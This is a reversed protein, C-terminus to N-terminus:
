DDFGESVGLRTEIRSMIQHRLETDELRALVDVFFGRVVLQRAVQEPIGRSLLYFLQEDDFRGTASAHGASVVDGTELELNPVSDARPGDELLLNRNLEYTEIGVAERRVLVDGVWVSHSGTGSLAGKYVVNSVCHPETHDVLIRHEQYQDGTLLFAGLLEATGGPASYTVRPVTRIIGGGLSISLGQFRADRGVDIGWHWLQTVPEKADIVSLVTVEANAGINSVLSGSVNVDADHVLVIQCKAFAGVRIEVHAYNNLMDGTLNVVVSEALSAEAPIDILIAHSVGAYAIASARDTPMWENSLRPDGLSVLEVYPGETASLSKWTQNQFFDALRAIPTFRWEEERGHPIPFDEPNRSYIQPALDSAPALATNSM